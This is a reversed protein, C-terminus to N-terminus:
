KEWTARTELKARNQFSLVLSPRLYHIHVKSIKGELKLTESNLMQIDATKQSEHILRVVYPGSWFMALKRSNPSEPDIPRYFDM